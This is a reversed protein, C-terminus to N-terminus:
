LIYPVIKYQYRSVFYPPVHKDSHHRFGFREYVARLKARSAECDLRLYSRGLDRTREVAWSLLPTSVVGSAFRRRIALRHVFASKGKPVDPWFLSDELQFKIVGASQGDIRAIFCLGGAVDAAVSKYALENDRWMPTNQQRLWGAAELLIQAVAKTDAGGAQEIVVELQSNM